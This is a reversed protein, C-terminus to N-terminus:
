KLVEEYESDTPCKENSSNSTITYSTNYNNANDVEKTITISCDGIDEKTKPNTIIKKNKNSGTIDPNNSGTLLGNSVLTQLNIVITNNNLITVPGLKGNSDYEYIDNGMYDVEEFLQKSAIAIDEVMIDYTAENSSNITNLINPIAILGLVAIIVVVALVEILTFGKNNIKKM